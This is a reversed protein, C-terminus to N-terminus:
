RAASRLYTLVALVRRNTADDPPIGLKALISGVHKAVAAESVHLGAAVAANSRGEAILVLVDKERPSLVALPDSPARVLHRVVEPDIATGGAAVARLTGAFEAVDAVRDKLLYGVRRGDGTGLLASAYEAQVYQSLVVVPLAPREARLTLAARLGDDRHGPPMRVDTVVLEPGLSRVAALLEPASGVAAAVEFGFRELLGVLGERLLVEDEALVVRM